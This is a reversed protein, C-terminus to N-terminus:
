CSPPARAPGRSYACCSAAPLTMLILLEAGFFDRVATHVASDNVDQLFGYSFFSAPLVWVFRATAYWYPKLTCIGYGLCSAVLIPLLLALTLIVNGVPPPSNRILSFLSGGLAVTAILNFLPITVLQFVFRAPNDLFSWDAETDREQRPRFTSPLISLFEM